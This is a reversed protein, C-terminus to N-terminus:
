RDGGGAGAAQALLADGAAEVGDSGTALLVVARGGERDLAVYTRTGGTGGNHWTVPPLGREPDAPDTIWALGVQRGSAADEDPAVPDLASAGPATGDLLAAALAGLDNATSHPGIGAPAWGPATWPDQERGNGAVPRASGVPVESLDGAVTTSTMGLPGTLREALLQEYTTGARVALADGLTAFGLNSYAHGAGGPAGASGAAEVVDDADGAYPSGATLNALLARGTALPAPDLSPLGSRHTAVEQLTATGSGALVTGPVLAGVPEDLRVEGRDVADALLMGTLGKAVSGTEFPTDGDVPEGGRGTEGLGATTVRGDEVWAVAVSRHGDAGGLAELTRAALAPDGTREPGLRPPHPGVAVAALVGASLAGVLVLLTKRSPRM